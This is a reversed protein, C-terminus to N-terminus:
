GPGRALDFSIPFGPRDDAPHPEITAIVGPRDEGGEDGMRAPWYGCTWASPVGAATTGRLELTTATQTTLVERLVPGIPDEAFVFLESPRQGYHAQAALGNIRALADNVYRYRFQEDHVAVGFSASHLWPPSSPPRAQLQEALGCIGLVQLVAPSGEVRVPRRRHIQVIWSVGAAGLLTVFRLDLVDPQAATAGAPHDGLLRGVTHADLAGIVTLVTEARHNVEAHTILRM